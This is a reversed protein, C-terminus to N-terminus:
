AYSRNKVFTSIASRFRERDSHSFIRHCEVPDFHQVVLLKDDSETVVGWTSGDTIIDMHTYHKAHSYHKHKYSYDVHMLFAATVHPAHLDSIQCDVDIGVISDVWISAATPRYGRFQSPFKFESPWPSQDSDSLSPAVSLPTTKRFLNIGTWLRRLKLLQEKSCGLKALLGTPM